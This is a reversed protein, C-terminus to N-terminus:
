VVILSTSFTKDELRVMLKIALLSAEGCKAHHRPARQCARSESLKQQAIQGNIFPVHVNAWDFSAAFRELLWSMHKLTETTARVTRSANPIIDDRDIGLPNTRSLPGYSVVKCSM